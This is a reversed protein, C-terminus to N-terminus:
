HKQRRLRVYLAGDGGDRPLATQYDVVYPALNRATLWIPTMRRLVGRTSGELFGHSQRAEPSGKGTIVLICRKGSLAASQVFRNLRLHAQAQTLGHLDLTADISLKGQKVQRLTGRDFGEQPSPASASGEPPRHRPSPKGQDPWIPKAVPRADAVGDLLPDEDVYRKRTEEDLPTTSQMVTRFLDDGELPRTKAKAKKKGDTKKAMMLLLSTCVGPAM